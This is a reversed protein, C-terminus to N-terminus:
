RGAFQANMYIGYETESMKYCYRPDFNVSEKNLFISWSVSFQSQLIQLKEECTEASMLTRSGLSWFFQNISVRIWDSNSTKLIVDVILEGEDWGLIISDESRRYQVIVGRPRAAVKSFVFSCVELLDSLHLDCQTKFKSITM